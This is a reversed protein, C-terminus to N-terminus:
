IDIHPERDLADVSETGLDHFADRAHGMFFGMNFVRVTDRITFDRSRQRDANVIAITPV